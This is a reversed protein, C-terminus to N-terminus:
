KHPYIETNYVKVGFPTRTSFVLRYIELINSNDDDFTYHEVLVSTNKLAERSSLYLPVPVKTEVFPEDSGYVGNLESNGGNNDYDIRNNDEIVFYLGKLNREFFYSKESELEEKTKVTSFVGNESVIVELPFFTPKKYNCSSLSILSLVGIAYPFMKKFFFEKNM